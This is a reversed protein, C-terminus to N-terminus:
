LNEVLSDIRKSYEDILEGNNLSKALNVKTGSILLSQVKKAGLFKFTGELWSLHNGWLYWGEPAGQSAIITVDINTLLGIADGKKSYKYSFTQDAVSIADIFNKVIISPGFNIMPVSIIVKDVEKMKAIWKSSEVDSYYTTFSKQTLFVESLKTDALNIVEIESDIYKSQVKDILYDVVKNSFSNADAVLHGKLVLVKM